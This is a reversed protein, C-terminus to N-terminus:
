ANPRPISRSGIPRKSMGSMRRNPCFSKRKRRWNAHFKGDIPQAFKNIKWFIRFLDSIQESAGANFRFVDFGAACLDLLHDNRLDDRGRAMRIRITKANAFNIITSSRFVLDNAARGIVFDAIFNRERQRPGLQWVSQLNTFAFQAADFGCSHKAAWDLEAESFVSGAEQNQLRSCLNTRGDGIKEWSVRNKVDFDCRVTAVQQTM